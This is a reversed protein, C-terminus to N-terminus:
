LEPVLFDTNIESIGLKIFKNKEKINNVTHVYNPIERQKLNMPLSTQARNKPMTISLSANPAKKIWSAVIKLVNENTGSYRYLTWIIQYFGIDVVTSL